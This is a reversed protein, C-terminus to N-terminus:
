GDDAPANPVLYSVIRQAGLTIAAGTLSKDWAGVAVWTVLLGAVGTVTAAWWKRTPM